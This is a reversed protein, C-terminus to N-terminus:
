REEALAKLSALGAEFDRGVMRDMDFFLCAITGAHQRELTYEVVNDAKMPKRMQLSLVVRRPAEVATIEIVGAGVERNGDFEYRAGM